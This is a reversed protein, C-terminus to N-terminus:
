AASRTQHIIEPQPSNFALGLVTWAMRLATLPHHFESYDEQLRYNSKEIADLVQTFRATYSYGALRCRPNPARSLYRIGIKFTSRALEVRSKVWMRYAKSDVDGPSIHHAELVERPINIYGERIDGQADRLMHVIHAATVALYRTDDQPSACCHGIFYHMAETVATALWHTYENLEKQSILRGRRYADFVMVSMMNRIYIQLGSNPERDSNILDALMQEEDTLDFPTQGRYLYDMLARQREVFVSRELLESGPQDLKDDVWRFYAYTRFANDVRDRDVLYRITYYTQKSATWTISQALEAGSEFVKEM